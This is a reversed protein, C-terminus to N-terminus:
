SSLILHRARERADDNQNYIRIETVLCRHELDVQRWAQDDPGTHAQYTASLRGSVIGAAQRATDGDDRIWTPDASSM